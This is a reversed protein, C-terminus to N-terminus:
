GLINSEHENAPIAEACQEVELKSGEKIDLSTAKRFNGEEPHQEREELNDFEVDSLDVLRHPDLGASSLWRAVLESVSGVICYFLFQM